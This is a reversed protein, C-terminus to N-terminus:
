GVGRLTFTINWVGETIETPSFDMDLWVVTYQKGDYDIFSFPSALQYIEKLRVIGRDDLGEMTFTWKEINSTYDLHPTGDLSDKWNGGLKSTVPTRNTFEFPKGALIIYEKKM